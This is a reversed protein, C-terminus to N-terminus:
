GIEKYENYAIAMNDFYGILDSQNFYDIATKQALIANDFHMLNEGTLNMGTYKTYLEYVDQTVSFALSASQQDTTLEKEIWSRAGSGNHTWYIQVNRSEVWFWQECGGYNHFRNGAENEDEPYCVRLIINNKPPYPTDGLSTEAWVWGYEPCYYESIYHMDFWSTFWSWTPMVLLVKAPVGNARFLATGLNARGTCSGGFFLSSVADLYKAWTTRKNPSVLMALRWLVMRLKHSSTYKVNKEAFEILNGNKGQLKRAKLRIRINNSQVAKTSALWTKTEEPLRDRDPIKVYEPLDNYDKNKVLVWFDFHLFAKEGSKISRINFNIVKNPPNTDNSISCSIIESTTDDRIEFLIGAQDEYNPPISYTINFSNGNDLLPLIYFAIEGHLLDLEQEIDSAVYISDSTITPLPILGLFLFITVLVLGKKIIIKM